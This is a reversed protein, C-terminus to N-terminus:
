AWVYVFENATNTCKFGGDDDIDLSSQLSM